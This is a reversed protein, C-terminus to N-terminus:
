TMSINVRHLSVYIERRQLTPPVNEQVLDQLSTSSRTRPVSNVSLLNAATAVDLGNEENPASNHRRREHSPEPSLSRRRAMKLDAVGVGNEKHQLKPSDRRFKGLFSRSLLTEKEEKGSPKKPLPIATDSGVSHSKPKKLGGRFPIIFNNLFFNKSFSM